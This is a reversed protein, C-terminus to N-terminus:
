EGPGTVMGVWWEPDLDRELTGDPVKSADVGLKSLMNRQEEATRSNYRDILARVAEEGGGNHYQHFASGIMADFTLTLQKDPADLADMCGQDVMGLEIACEWADNTGALGAWPGDAQAVLTKRTKAWPGGSGNGVERVRGFDFGDSGRATPAEQEALLRLRDDSNDLDVLANGHARAVSPVLVAGLLIATAYRPLSLHLRIKM